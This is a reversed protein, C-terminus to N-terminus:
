QLLHLQLRYLDERNATTPVTRAPEHGPLKVRGVLTRGRFNQEKPVNGGHTAHAQLWQRADATAKDLCDSASAKKMMLERLSARSSKGSKTIDVVKVSATELRYNSLASSLQLFPNSDDEEMTKEEESDIHPAGPVLLPPLDLLSSITAKAKWQAADRRAAQLAPRFLAAEFAGMNASGALAQLDDGSGRRDGIDAIRRPAPMTRRAKPSKADKNFRIESEYEEVQRHLVDM